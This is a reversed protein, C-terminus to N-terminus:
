ACRCFLCQGKLPRVRCIPHFHAPRHKRGSSLLGLGCAAQGFWARLVGIAAARSDLEGLPRSGRSDRCNRSQRETTGNGACAVRGTRVVVQRRDAAQAAPGLVRGCDLRGIGHRWNHGCRPFRHQTEHSWEWIPVLFHLNSVPSVACDQAPDGRCTKNCRGHM